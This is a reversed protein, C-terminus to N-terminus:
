EGIEIWYVSSSRSPRVGDIVVDEYEGNKVNLIRVVMMDEDAGGCQRMCGNVAARNGNKSFAIDLIYMDLRIYSFDGSSVDATVLYGGNGDASRGSAVVVSSSGPLWTPSGFNPFGTISSLWIGSGNQADVVFVDSGRGPDDRIEVLLAIHSGTPSWHLRRSSNWGDVAIWSPSISWGEDSSSIIFVGSQSGDSLRGDVPPKPQKIGWIAVRSRDPSWEVALNSYLHVLADTEDPGRVIIPSEKMSRSNIDYIVIRSKAVPDNFEHKWGLMRNGGISLAEYGVESSSEALLDLTGVELVYTSPNNCTPIHGGIHTSNFLLKSEDPSWEFGYIVCKTLDLEVHTIELKILDLIYMEDGMYIRDENVIPFAIAIRDNNPSLAFEDISEDPLGFLGTIPQSTGAKIDLLSLGEGPRYTLLVDRDVLSRNEPLATPAENVAPSDGSSGPTATTASAPVPSPTLVAPTPSSTVTVARPTPTATM